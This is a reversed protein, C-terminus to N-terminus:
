RIDIGKEPNDFLPIKSAHLSLYIYRNNMEEDKHIKFLARVDGLTFQRLRLRNTKIPSSNTNSVHIM